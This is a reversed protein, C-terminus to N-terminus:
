RCGIIFGGLVTAAPPRLDPGAQWFIVSAEAELNHSDLGDARVNTISTMYGGMPRLTPGEFRGKYERRFYTVAEPGFAPPAFNRLTRTPNFITRGGGPYAIPSTIRRPNM